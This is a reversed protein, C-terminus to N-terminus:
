TLEDYVRKNLRGAHLRAPATLKWRVPDPGILLFCWLAAVATIPFITAPVLNLLYKCSLGVAAATALILIPAVFVQDYKPIIWRFTLVRGWFGIPSAHNGGNLGLRVMALIVTGYGVVMMGAGIALDESPFQVMVARMWWGFLAALLLKEPKGMRRPPVWPSMASFPWGLESPAVRDPASQDDIMGSKQNQMALWRNKLRTGWDVTEDWPFASWSQHLGALAALWGGALGAVAAAPSWFKIQLAGALLFWSAYAFSRPSTLWVVTSVAMAHVMFYVVVAAVPGPRVFPGGILPRPDALLMALAGVILADALTPHVPGLPLPMGRRWPTIKLWERYEPRLLPHYAAVRFIAFGAVLCLIVHDRIYILRESAQGPGQVREVLFWIIELAAIGLLILTLHTFPPLIQRVRGTLQGRM